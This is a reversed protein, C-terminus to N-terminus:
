VRRASATTIGGKLVEQAEEECVQKDLPQFQHLPGPIPAPLAAMSGDTHLGLTEKIDEIFPWPHRKRSSLTAIVIKGLGWLTLMMLLVNFALQPLDDLMTNEAPPLIAPIVAEILFNAPYLVLSLLLLLLGQKVEQNLRSEVAENKDKLM